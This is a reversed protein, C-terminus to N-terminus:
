GAGYPRVCGWDVLLHIMPGSRGWGILLDAPTDQSREEGPAMFVYMGMHGPDARGRMILFSVWQKLM